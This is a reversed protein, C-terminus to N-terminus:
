HMIDEELDMLTNLTQEHFAKKTKFIATLLEVAELVTFTGSSLQIEM